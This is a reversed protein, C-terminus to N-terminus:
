AHVAGGNINIPPESLAREVTWGRKLRALITGGHFGTIEVWEALCRTEGNWTLLRNYRTNRQQETPTAWRVNGPEYNGHKDPFRDLMEDSASDCALGFSLCRFTIVGGNACDQDFEITDSM